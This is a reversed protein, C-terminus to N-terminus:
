DKLMEEFLPKMAAAWLEYGQPSLHLQDRNYLEPKVKGPATQFKDTMDLFRITKGDTLPEILKNIHMTRGTFYTNERPLLGLLLIKTNPLKQRLLGVIAGIGAAIEEDSGANVDNYLNNTGIKLVVLKPKIGDVEGNQLRWLVQRTSDGGIGYNVAGLPAYVKDWVAKGTDNWGQTISDGLFVVSIDNKQAGQATRELFSKHFNAWALPFNAYYGWGAVNPKDKLPPGADPQTVVATELPRTDTPDILKVEDLWAQGKGEALLQVNFRLTGPPIQIAKYFPLWDIDGQVFVVQDFSKQQWGGNPDDAFSQVAVQTKVAGAAKIFGTIQLIKGAYGPVLQFAQGSGGEVDVRLSAPGEKYVRTDRTAIVNGWKETWNTPLAGGQGMDGNRLINRGGATVTPTATATPAVPTASTAVSAAATAATLQVKAVRAFEADAPTSLYSKGPKLRTSVPWLTEFFGRGFSGFILEGPEFPDFAIAHGRLMPLGDNATRFTKGADESLWVGTARSVEVYPNQNTTFALRNPDHPDVAVNMIWRDDWLRTWKEADPLKEDWRWLGGRESEEACIYLRGLTDVAMRGAKRPGGIPTWNQGGDRTLYVDKDGSVFFRATNKPDAAIWRLGPGLEVIKWNDGGNRSAYLKGGIAAWVKDPAGPLAYIGAPENPGKGWGAEPLGNPAGQLVQWTKGGDKSRGIGHFSGHQGTTVFIWGEPTFCTDVGGGWPTPDSLYRQWSKGGNDTILLRAADLANLAIQDRKWPNFRANMSCWGTFGRGKWGGDDQRDNGWDRWTQGGDGTGIFHESGTCVAVDPNNPDISFVTGALGAPLATEVQSIPQVLNVPAQGINKKTAAARWNKGGDRTVYLIGQNWAGDACYMVDPNKPSVAFAPFSSTLNESADSGQALGNNLPMWQAGGDTSKYIGGPLAKQAGQPKFAGLSVWLTQAEKPHAQVRLVKSHPLGNQSKTWTKGGDKSVFFGAEPSVAYLIQSSGAAFEASYINVGKAVDTTNGDTGITAIKTWNEGGNKSEWVAGWLPKQGPLDWGRSSGGFTILHNSDNPDFLIREVPASYGFNTPAPFGNRKEEYNQGGDKSKYPGSLTGYWVVNPDKPHFTADNIEWSAFGFTPGWTRGGDLSLGAGLMDGGTVWRRSDHPSIRLSTVWGGSGPERLPVWSLIRYGETNHAQAPINSLIGPALGIMVLFWYKIKM